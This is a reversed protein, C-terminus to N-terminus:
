IGGFPTGLGGRAFELRLLDRLFGSKVYISFGVQRFDGFPVVNLRAEWCHLDKILQLQTTAFNQRVLDFGSAGSLHFGFPLGLDFRSLSLVAEHRAPAPGAAPSYSYTLDLAFSWRVGRDVVGLSSAGPPAAGAALGLPAGGTLPDGIGVPSAATGFGAPLPAPESRRVRSRFASGVSLSLRTTRFPFGTESLYTAPSPRGLSDLAYASATGDLRLRFREGLESALDFSLDALRREPAAFNYASRLNLSLVQITERREGSETTSDPRVRRTQFANALAFGV